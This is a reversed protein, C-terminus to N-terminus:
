YCRVIEPERGHALSFTGLDEGTDALTVTLTMQGERVRGKYRAPRGAAVPGEGNEERIDPARVPGGREEIHTGRLDFRGAGDPRIPSDITGRGCDYEVRAGADTVHLAIHQGGWLGKLMRSAGKKSVPARRAARGKQPALGAAPAQVLAVLSVAVVAIVAIAVRRM